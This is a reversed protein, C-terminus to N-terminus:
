KNQEAAEQMVRYKVAIAIVAWVISNGRQEAMPVSVIRKNQEVRMVAM